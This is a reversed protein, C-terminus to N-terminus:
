YILDSFPAQLRCGAAPAEKPPLASGAASEATGLLEEGGARGPSRSGCGQSFQIFETRSSCHMEM